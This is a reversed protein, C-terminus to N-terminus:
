TKICYPYLLVKAAAESANCIACYNYYNAKASNEPVECNASSFYKYLKEYELKNIIESIDIEDLKARNMADQIITNAQLFSTRLVKVHYKAYLLPITLAAVIGIIGLTVM